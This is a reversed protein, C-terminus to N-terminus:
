KFVVFKHNISQENIRINLFYIGAPLSSVTIEKEYDGAQQKASGLNLVRKGSADVVSLGTQSEVPLTYRFSIKETAPNPFVSFELEPKIERIGTSNEATLSWVVSYSHLGAHNVDRSLLTTDMVTFVLNNSGNNLQNLNILVSDINNAITNSNLSWSRKLTNPNPQILKTKFWQSATVALPTTNVPSYGDLPSILSHIKEIIRQKCVSCFPSNLYRMKCNQHPRFWTNEPATTGYPFVGTSNTGLWQTWKVTATNSTATMNPKEAAYMAGAWYEDALGAFSHGMEHVVTENSSANMSMVIYPGGAGGYEPSNGLIVIQDYAPFWTAAVSYVSAADNSYILRHINYNDFQTDFCNNVAVVPIQPETVDTADGPHSVGSQPSVCNIAYVNFYKKYNSFPAQNFLYTSVTTVNTNFQALQPSTYGDGMFVLNIRKNVPGSKLLTDVGTVSAPQCCVIGAAFLLPLIFKNKM